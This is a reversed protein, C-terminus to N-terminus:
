PRADPGKKGPRYRLIVTLTAASIACSVSNTIILPPVRTQIGYCLWLIFGVLLVAIWGASVGASSRRRVIIRVQLLPALSMLLGWSTTAWALFNHVTSKWL